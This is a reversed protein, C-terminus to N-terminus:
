QEKFAKTISYVALEDCDTNTFDCLKSTIIEEVSDTYSNAV